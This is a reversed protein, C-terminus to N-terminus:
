QKIRAKSNSTAPFIRQTASLSLQEEFPHTWRRDETFEIQQRCGSRQVRKVRESGVPRNSDPANINVRLFQGAVDACQWWIQSKVRRGGGEVGIHHEYTVLRHRYFLPLTRASWRASPSLLLCCELHPSRLLVTARQRNRPHLLDGDDLRSRYPACSTLISRPLATDRPM